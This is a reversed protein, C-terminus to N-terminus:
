YPGFGMRTDPKPWYNNPKQAIPPYFDELGPEYYNAMAPSLGSGLKTGYGFAALEILEDKNIAYNVAQRVRHDSFPKRNLNM